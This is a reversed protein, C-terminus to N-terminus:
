PGANIRLMEIPDEVGKVRCLGLPVPIPNDIHREIM